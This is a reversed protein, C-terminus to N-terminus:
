DNKKSFIFCYNNLNDSYYNSNDIDEKYLVASKLKDEFIKNTKNIEKINKKAYKKRM